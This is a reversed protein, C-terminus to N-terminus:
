HDTSDSDSDYNDFGFADGERTDITNITWGHSKMIRRTQESLLDADVEVIIERLSSIARFHTDALQFAETTVQLVKVRSLTCEVVDTSALSTMLTSLNTCASQITALPRLGSEEFTVHGPELRDLLPFDIYVHRIYAANTSGIQEFFSAVEKLRVNTFGFRNEGYFLSSAERHVAKNARLLGPTLIKERKYAYGVGPHVPLQHLLVLEYICNRLESPLSLFGLSSPMTEAADSM